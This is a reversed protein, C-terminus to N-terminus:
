SFPCSETIIFFWLSTSHYEHNLNQSIPLNYQQRTQQLESTNSRLLLMPRIIWVMWSHISELIVSNRFDIKWIDLHMLFIENRKEFSHTQSKLKLQIHFSSYNRWNKCTETTWHIKVRNILCLRLTIKIFCIISNRNFWIKFCWSQGGLMKQSLLKELVLIM